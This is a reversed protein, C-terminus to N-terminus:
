ELPLLACKLRTPSLEIGLLEIVKEKKLEMVEKIDKGTVFDTLLSASAISVACGVGDFNIKEIKNKNRNLKITLSIQDGCFPNGRQDKIDADKLQGFNHPHRYHDLIYDRY